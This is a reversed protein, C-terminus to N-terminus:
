EQQERLVETLVPVVEFLDGVIGYDCKGFIPADIDTNIAVIVKSTKMGAFHQVSGSLGCGIYLKPSVTKGTQGVQMSHPAHGADVAARSAGVAGGVLDACQRLIKYNDESAMPRGGTVIVNAETLDVAKSQSQKIEKIVLKAPDQVTAQYSIAEAQCPAAQVEIANPRLGCIYPNANFKITALTKGSFHSKIVTKAALDLGICDQVLPADILAALRAFIDRGAASSLGLLVSIDFHDIADALAGARLDPSSTLDGGAASLEVVKQVGYEQLISKCSEASAGLVFAYIEHSGDGRAATMVGFNAEKVGDDGTEILVGINSM